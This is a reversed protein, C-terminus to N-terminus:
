KKRWRIFRRKWIYVHTPAIEFPTFGFIAHDQVIQRATFTGGALDRAHGHVTCRRVTYLTSANHEHHPSLGM